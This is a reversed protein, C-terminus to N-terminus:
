ARLLIRCFRNRVPSCFCSVSTKATHKNNWIKAKPIQAVVPQFVSTNFLQGSGVQMSDIFVAHGFWAVVLPTTSHSPFFSWQYLLFWKDSTMLIVLFFMKIPRFTCGNLLMRFFFFFFCSQVNWHVSVHESNLMASCLKISVCLAFM